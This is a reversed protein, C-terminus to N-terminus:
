VTVKYESRVRGRGVKEKGDVYVTIQAGDDIDLSFDARGDSGTMEPGKMGGAAFQHIELAVRANSQPRGGGDVVLITTHKM